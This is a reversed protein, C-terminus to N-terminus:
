TVSGQFRCNPSLFNYIKPTSYRPGYLVYVGFGAGLVCSGYDEKFEDNIQRTWELSIAHIKSRFEDRFSDIDYVKANYEKSLRALKEQYKKSLTKKEM